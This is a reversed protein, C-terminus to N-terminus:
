WPTKQNDLAKTFAATHFAEKNVFSRGGLNHAAAIRSRTASDANRPRKRGLSPPAVLAAMKKGVCRGKAAHQIRLPTRRM